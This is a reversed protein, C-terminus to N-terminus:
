PFYRERRPYKQAILLGKNVLILILFPPCIEPNFKEPLGLKNNTQAFSFSTSITL